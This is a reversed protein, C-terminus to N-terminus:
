FNPNSDHALVGLVAWGNSSSAEVCAGNDEQLFFVGFGDPQIKHIEDSNLVQIGVSWHLILLWQTYIYNSFM